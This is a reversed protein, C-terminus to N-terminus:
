EAVQKTFYYEMVMGELEMRWVLRGDDLLNLALVEMTEGTTEDQDAISCVTGVGEVETVVYSMQDTVIEGNEDNTAFLAQGQSLVLAMYVGVTEASMEVGMFNATTLLWQGEFAVPDVGALATPGEAEVIAPAAGERTLMMTVGSQNMLLMENQYAIEVTEASDTIAIGNETAAWTGGEEMGMMSLVVTGDANVVVKMDMGVAALTSPGMQVGDTEAGTLVWTGVYDVAPSTAYALKDKATLRGYDALLTTEKGVSKDYLMKAYRIPIAYFMSNADVRSSTCVGIVAGWEDFLAGGSSGHSIPATFQIADRVSESYYVINSVMGNSVSNISGKPSGIAIVSQGRQLERDAAVQLPTVQANEDFALIAIDMERNVAKLETLKYKSRYQDSYAVIYAANEIVHENTILTGGDFAVFGSGTGIVTDYQDYVELLFCSNVAQEIAVTGNNLDGEACSWSGMTVLIMVLAIIISFRKKM